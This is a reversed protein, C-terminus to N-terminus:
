PHRFVFRGRELSEETASGAYVSRTRQGRPPTPQPVNFGDDWSAGKGGSGGIGQKGAVFNFRSSGIGIKGRERMTEGRLHLAANVGSGVEPLPPVPLM